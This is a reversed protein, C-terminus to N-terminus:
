SSATACILDPEELGPPLQGAPYYIVPIFEGKGNHFLKRDVPSLYFSELLFRKGLGPLDFAFLV